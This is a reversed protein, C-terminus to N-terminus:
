LCVRLDDMVLIEEGMYEDFPNSAAVSCVSWHEGLEKEADKQVYKVLADTFMSKGSHSKGTIFFVSLKFNGNEMAQVTKAIKRQAYTDIADDCRRKNRAYIDYLEDTLLIQNRCIEGTLIREELMDINVKAAEAKIKARGELWEKKREHYYDMFEKGNGWPQGKHTSTCTIVEAPDYQAKEAYKIHILYALMNDYADKGRRPKEVYQPEVGLAGAIKTITGGRTKGNADKGFRCLIHIHDPKQEIVYGSSAEDWVERNDKNHIIVHMEDILMGACLIKYGVVEAIALTDKKVIAQLDKDSWNWYSEELQQALGFASLDAEKRAM